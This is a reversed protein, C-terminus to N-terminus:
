KAGAWVDLHVPVEDNVTVLINHPVA